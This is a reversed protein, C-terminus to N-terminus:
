IHLVKIDEKIGVVALHEPSTLIHDSNFSQLERCALYLTSFQLPSFGPLEHLLSRTEILAKIQSFKNENHWLSQTYNQLYKKQPFGETLFFSLLTTGCCTRHHHLPGREPGHSTPTALWTGRKLM